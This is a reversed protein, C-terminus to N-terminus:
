IMNFYKKINLLTRAVATNLVSRYSCLSWLMIDIHFLNITIYQTIYNSHRRIGFTEVVLITYM